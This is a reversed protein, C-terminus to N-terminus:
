LQDIRLDPRYQASRRMTRDFEHRRHDGGDLLGLPEAVPYQMPLLLQAGLAHQQIRGHRHPHHDLHRRGRQHKIVHAPDKIEEAVPRIIQQLVPLRGIAAIDFDALQVVM